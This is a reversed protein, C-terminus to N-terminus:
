YNTQKQKRDRWKLRLLSYTELLTDMEELNNLKSALNFKNAYLQGYFDWWGKYKKTNAPIDERENIMKNVKAREWKKQTLRTLLQWNKLRILYGARLRALRKM